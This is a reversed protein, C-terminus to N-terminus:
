KLDKQLKQIVNDVGAKLIRHSKDEGVYRVSSEYGHTKGDKEAYVGFRYIKPETAPLLWVYLGHNTEFDSM